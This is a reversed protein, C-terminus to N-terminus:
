RLTSRDIGVAMEAAIAEATLAYISGVISASGIFTEDSREPDRYLTLCRATFVSAMPAHAVIYVRSVKSAVARDDLQYFRSDHRVYWRADRTSPDTCRFVVRRQKIRM